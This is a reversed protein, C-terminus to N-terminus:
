PVESRGATPNQPRAPLGFFSPQCVVLDKVRLRLGESLRLGAGYLLSAVLRNTGKMASLLPKVDARSLITPLRRLRPTPQLTGFDDLPTDLAMEYLFVLANLAQNHTSPAVNRDVALHDLFARVDGTDLHRPHSTDHFRVFRRGWGTYARETHTSFDRRRCVRRVQDLRKPPTLPMGRQM